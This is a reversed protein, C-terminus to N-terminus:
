PTGGQITPSLFGNHQLVLTEVAVKNEGSSLSPGSWASPVVDELVWHAVEVLQYDLLTITASTHGTAPYADWGAVFASLWSRVAASGARDMARRLTIPEYVVRDSLLVRRAYDGGSEVPKYQMRVTLGECSQWQGLDLAGVSVSFRMALGYSPYGGLASVAGASGLGSMVM